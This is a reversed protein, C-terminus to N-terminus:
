FMVAQSDKCFSLIEGCVEELPEAVLLTFQLPENVDGSIEWQCVGDPLLVPEDIAHFKPTGGNCSSNWSTPITGPIGLIFQWGKGNWLRLSPASVAGNPDLYNIGYLWTNPLVRVTGNMTGAPVSGTQFPNVVYGRFEYLTSQRLANVRESEMWRRTPSIRAQFTEQPFLTFGDIFLDVFPDFM